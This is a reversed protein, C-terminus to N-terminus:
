SVLNSREFGYNYIDFNSKELKAIMMYGLSPLWLRIMTNKVSIFKGKVDIHPDTIIKAFENPNVAKRELKINYFENTFNRINVIEDQQIVAPKGLWYVFNIVFNTNKIAGMEEDSIHVFVFSSMLPLYVTKKKTPASIVIRNLPYYNEIKKKALLGAVKKECNTKTHIVYWNKKM